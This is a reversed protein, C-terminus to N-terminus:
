IWKCSMGQSLKPAFKLRSLLKPKETSVGLVAKLLSKMEERWEM